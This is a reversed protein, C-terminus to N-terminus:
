AAEAVVPLLLTFTTGEDLRSRVTIDGGHLRVVERALALGLGSGTIETVRRDKARYFKDFIHELDEEKIGIGTDSVEVRIQRDEVEVSVDVQKKPPTYKLANGILNHLALALKDRDGQVMPLKPPLDFIFQIHKEDAQAQYDSHLGTLLEELRVDDKRIKLSGAEIEAVSLIDGVMRDLRQAEQNIINLSNALKAPDAQGEELAMDLYLRMNTLPTRLEHTAQAVFTNKAEEAVRQQTIDEILIMAAVSDEQRLPRVGFQLVGSGGPDKVEVTTRKCITGNAVGRVAEMVGEAEILTAVEAGIVEGREVKLHAAAAGNAYKIRLAEDVLLIGQSMADCASDLGGQSSRGAAITQKGKELALEKRLQEHEDLFGNWSVGAPGIASSVALAAASQEGAARSLLVGRIIDATRVRSRIRRCILLLGCLAGAGIAALGSQADWMVPGDAAVETAIELVADGRGRVTLPFAESIMGDEQQSPRAEGVAAPFTDPLEGGSIQAPDSDAVVRGDHLLIRCRTFAHERSADALMRRIASLENAALLEEASGTLVVGIADVQRQQAERSMTDQSRSVWWTSAGVAALILLAVAAGISVM